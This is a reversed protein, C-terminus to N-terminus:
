SKKRLSKKFAMFVEYYGKEKLIRNATRADIITYNPKLPFSLAMDDKIEELTKKAYMIM